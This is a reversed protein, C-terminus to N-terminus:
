STMCQLQTKYVIHMSYSNTCAIVSWHVLASLCPMAPSCQLALLVHAHLRSALMALKSGLTCSNHIIVVCSTVYVCPQLLLTSRFAKSAIHRLDQSFHLAAIFMPHACQGIDHKNPQRSPVLHILKYLAGLSQIKVHTPQTTVKLGHVGYATRYASHVWRRKSKGPTLFAEANCRGSSEPDSSESKALVLSDSSSCIPESTSASTRLWFPSASMSSAVVDPSPAQMFASKTLLHGM